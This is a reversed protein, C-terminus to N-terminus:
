CTSAGNPYFFINQKNTGPIKKIPPVARGSELQKKWLLRSKQWTAFFFVSNTFDLTVRRNSRELRKGSNSQIGKARQADRM